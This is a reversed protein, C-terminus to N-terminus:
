ADAEGIAKKRIKGTVLALLPLFLEFFQWLISSTERGSTAHQIGSPYLTFSYSIILIGTALVAPRYSKMGLIQAIGVSTVYYLLTIKFFLLVILVVAFLFELRSIGFISITRLTVYAPLVFLGVASGLVATDRIVVLLLALAGILFGGIFYLGVSRKKERTHPIIMLFVVLEGFPISLIVNTGQIYKKVPLQLMPLFNNIDMRSTSLLLSLVLVFASILVFLLGYRTVVVIGYRVALASVLMCSTLLVVDPTKIMVTEKVFVGMDRLNLSSLTLFFLLSLLSVGKGFVKGFVVDNIELLNKGPFTKMLGIYVALIPLCFITGVIVVFWSDYDTVGALFATLLASAQIFCATSFMLQAPTIKGSDLKM